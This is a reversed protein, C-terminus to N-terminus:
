TGSEPRPRGLRFLVVAQFLVAGLFGVEMGYSFINNGTFTFAFGEQVAAALFVLVLAAPLVIGRAGSGRAVILFYGALGVLVFALSIHATLLPVSVFVQGITSFAPLLVYLNLATGLMNQVVLLALGIWGLTALRDVPRDRLARAAPDTEEVKRDERREAEVRQLM